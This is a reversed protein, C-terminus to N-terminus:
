KLLDCIESIDYRLIRETEYEIVYLKKETIDIDFFLAKVPVLIEAIANGDWDFLHISPNSFTGSDLECMKANLYLAAFCNEFSKSDYYMKRVDDEGIQELDKLKPMKEGISLTKAFKDVYSYIHIVNIRSGFEAIRSKKYNTAFGTSLLNMDLSSIINLNGVNSSGIEEGNYGIVLRDYGDRDPKCKRCLLHKNDLYFYRAGDMIPLEEAIIEWVPANDIISGTIDYRLYNGKFDYIFFYHGGDSFDAWSIFPDYLIEGPGNGKKLLDIVHQTSDKSFISFCGADSSSSVVIHEELVKIGSLGIIDLDLVVPDHLEYTVPFNKIVHVDDFAFYRNQHCSTCLTMFIAWILLLTLINRM